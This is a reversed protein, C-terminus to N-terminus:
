YFLNESMTAIAFCSLIAFDRGSVPAGDDDVALAGFDEIEAPTLRRGLLRPGLGDLTAAVDADDLAEGGDAESPASLDLSTFVVPAGGADKDVRATCGSLAVRDFAIPTTVTPAPLPEYQSKVFPENGGLPVLHVFDVCSYIGLENCLEQKELALGALLDSEIARARKWALRNRTSIAFPPPPLPDPGADVVGEGEGEGENANGNGDGDGAPAAPCGVLAGALSLALAFASFSAPAAAKM